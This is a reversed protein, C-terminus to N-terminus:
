GPRRRAVAAAGVLLFALSAGALASVERAQVFLLREAPVVLAVYAYGEPPWQTTNDPPPVEAELQYWTLIRGDPAQIRQELFLDGPNGMESGAVVAESGLWRLHVYSGGAIGIFGIVVTLILAPLMRGMVAGLGIGLALVFVARAALVV